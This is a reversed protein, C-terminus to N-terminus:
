LYMTPSTGEKGQGSDIGERADWDWPELSLSLHRALILTLPLGM